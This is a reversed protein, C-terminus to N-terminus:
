GVHVLELAAQPKSADLLWDAMRATNNEAQELRTRNKVQAYNEVVYELRTCLDAADTERYTVVGPSRRGNESAVVPVGLSLSELVSASVGDCAPTRICAFCRTLLTLFEEHPLNGLLLLSSAEAAPAQRIFDQVAPLEKAPFGLWVFGAGPHKERFRTMAERLVPLRYEPRFSLYCFFVPHHTALFAEIGEPLPAPQFELSEASFCPIAAIREPDVGYAEIAQKIDTSDCSLREALRFLLRFAGCWPDSEPRPFHTQPLGGHFTLLAPRGVLRGVGLASLALLYGKPSEANVHVHFRYGALAFRFLKSLYDLGNQVDIYDPSKKKRNENINLVQCVQRRRRLEETLLKTQIAWGCLPPPYNGIQLIKHRHNRKRRTAWLQPMGSVNAVFEVFSDSSNVSVRGLAYRDARQGNLHPQATFACAYGAQPVLAARAADFSGDPYAFATIPVGLRRELEQRSARMEEFADKPELQPLPTHSVGHSGIDACTRPMRQAEQWDMRKAALPLGGAPLPLKQVLNRWLRDREEPSLPKLRASLKKFAVRRNEVRDLRFRTGDTLALTTPPAFRLRQELEETWYLRQTGIFATPLFFVAPIRLEKLLPWAIDYNNRYGDDFTILAARPPLPAKGDLWDIVQALSVLVYHRRLWQVQQVFAARPVHLQDFPSPDAKRDDYVGHYLLVLLRRRNLFRLLSFVGLGAFAGYVLRKLSRRLRMLHEAGRTLSGAM